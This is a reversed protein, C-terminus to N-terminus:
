LLSTPWKEFQRDGFDAATNLCRDIISVKQVKGWFLYPLQGQITGQLHGDMGAGRRYVDIDM